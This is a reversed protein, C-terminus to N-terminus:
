SKGGRPSSIAGGSLLLLVEVVVRTAAHRVAWIECKSLIVRVAETCPSKWKLKSAAFGNGFTGSGLLSLPFENSCVTEVAHSAGGAAELPMIGASHLNRWRSHGQAFFACWKLRKNAKGQRV